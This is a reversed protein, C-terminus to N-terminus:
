NTKNLCQPVFDFDNEPDLSFLKSSQSSIASFSELTQNKNPTHQIMQKPEPLCQSIFNGLQIPNHFQTLNPSSPQDVQNQIQISSSIKM